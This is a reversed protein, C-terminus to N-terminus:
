QPQKLRSYECLANQSEASAQSCADQAEKLKLRAADLSARTEKVRLEAQELPSMAPPVEAPPAEAVAGHKRFIEFMVEEKFAGWILAFGV